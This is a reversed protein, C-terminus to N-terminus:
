GFSFEIALVTSYRVGLIASVTADQDDTASGAPWMSHRDTAPPYRSADKGMFYTPPRGKITPAQHSIRLTKRPREILGFPPDLELPDRQASM